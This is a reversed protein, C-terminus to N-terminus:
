LQCPFSFLSFLFTNNNCTVVTVSRRRSLGRGSDALMQPFSFLWQKGRFGASLFISTPPQINSTPHDFAERPRYAM